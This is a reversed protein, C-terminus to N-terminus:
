LSSVLCRLASVQQGEDQSRLVKRLEDLPCEAFQAGGGGGVGPKALDKSLGYTNAFM